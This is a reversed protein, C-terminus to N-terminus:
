KEAAAIREALDAKAREASWAALGERSNGANTPPKLCRPEGALRVCALVRGGNDVDCIPNV